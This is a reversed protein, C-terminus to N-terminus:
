LFCDANFRIHGSMGSSEIYRAAVYRRARNVLLRSSGLTGSQIRRLVM